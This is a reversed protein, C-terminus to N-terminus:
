ESWRVSIRLFRRSYAGIPKIDTVTVPGATNGAGTSSWFAAWAALDESAQVEYLLAPDAVRAFSLMLYGAGDPAAVGGGQPTRSSRIAALPTNLYIPDATVTPILSIPPMM